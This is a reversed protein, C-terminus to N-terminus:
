HSLSAAESFWRLLKEIDKKRDDSGLVVVAIKTTKGDVEVEFITTMTQNAADTYGTKGGLFRADKTFVNFNPLPYQQGNESVITKNTERTIDLLEPHTEYVRTVLAFIDRASAQNGASLGTPEEFHASTMGIEKAKAQMADVFGPQSRALAFAVSNNSEMLLPYFLDKAPFSRNAPISGPTGETGRRDEATITITKEPAILDKAVLATVLKTISAIPLATDADKGVLITGNEVDGIVFSTASLKPLPKDALIIGATAPPPTQSLTETTETVVAAAAVQTKPEIIKQAVTELREGAIATGYHAAIGIAGLFVFVKTVAFFGRTDFSYSRQRM